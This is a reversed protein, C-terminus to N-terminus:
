TTMMPRKLTEPLTQLSMAQYLLDNKGMSGFGLDKTSSSKYMM